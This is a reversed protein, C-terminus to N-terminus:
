DIRTELIVNSSSSMAILLYLQILDHDNGQDNQRIKLEAILDDKNEINCEKEEVAKIYLDDKLNEHFDIFFPKPTTSNSYHPSAKSIDYSPQGELSNQIASFNYISEPLYTAKSHITCSSCVGQFLPQSKLQLNFEQELDPDPSTKFIALKSGFSSVNFSSANEQELQSGPISSLKQRRFRSRNSFQRHNSMTYYEVDSEQNKKM